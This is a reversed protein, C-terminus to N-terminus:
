RAREIDGVIEDATKEGTDTSVVNNSADIVVTTPIGSADLADTLRLGDDVGLTWAGDHERWWDVVEERTVTHGVAENTVSVFQVDDGVREYAEGLDDMMDQCVRCWTAFFEVFTVEGRRPIEVVGSESGPADLTEVEVPTVAGGVESSRLYAAGGGVAALGLAGAVFDRRRVGIM